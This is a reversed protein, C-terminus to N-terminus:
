SQAAEVQSQLCHVVMSLVVEDGNAQEMLFQKVEEDSKGAMAMKVTEFAIAIALILKQKDVPKDPTM